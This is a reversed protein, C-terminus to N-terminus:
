CETPLMVHELDAVVRSAHEFLTNQDKAQLAKDPTELLRVIIGTAQKFPAIMSPSQPCLVVLDLFDLYEQVPRWPIFSLVDKISVSVADLIQAGWTISMLVRIMFFPCHQFIEHETCFSLIGRYLSPSYLHAGDDDLYTRKRLKIICDIYQRSGVSPHWHGSTPSDTFVWVLEGAIRALRFILLTRIVQSSVQNPELSHLHHLTSERLHRLTQPSLDPANQNWSFRQWYLEAFRIAIRFDSPFTVPTNFKEILLDVFKDQSPGSKAGTDSSSEPQNSCGAMVLVIWIKMGLIYLILVLHHPRM